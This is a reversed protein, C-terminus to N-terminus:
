RLPSYDTPTLFQVTPKQKLIPGDKESETRAAKWDPDAAFAKWSAERAERSPYSLIYILTNKAEPGESPTWYGVLTMGHKVFLANTHERFRKHLADLRGDHTVYTRMEYVRDAAAASSAVAFMLLAALPRLM